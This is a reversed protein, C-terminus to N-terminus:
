AKRFSTHILDYLGALGSRVAGGTAQVGSRLLGGTPAPKANLPDAKTLSLGAQTEAVSPLPPHTMPALPDPALEGTVPSWPTDKIKSWKAFAAALKTHYGHKAYGAGNYGRAFGAWDHRRLEDDLGNTVIFRVMAALHEAEGGNCFALVMAQPTAYGAAKHNEGLIQGLGWSAAKLAAKENIAMAQMLRPYSDIPYAGPKWAAYALGLSAARTREAGVLNRWFVHPEFLMKPRKLREFGGGSAEVEMVARIEDEGVGITHGIRPLDYDTLRTAASVFGAARLRAFAGVDSSSTM